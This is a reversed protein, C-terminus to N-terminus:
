LRNQSLLLHQLKVSDDLSELPSIRAKTVSLSWFPVLNLGWKALELGWKRAHSIMHKHLRIWMENAEILDVNLTTRILEEFGDLHNEITKLFM